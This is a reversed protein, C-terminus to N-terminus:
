SVQIGAQRLKEKFNVDSDSRVMKLQKFKLLTETTTNESNCVDLHTIGQCNANIELLEKDSINLRNISLRTIWPIHKTLEILSKGNVMTCGAVLIKLHTLGKM